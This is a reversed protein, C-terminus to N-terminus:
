DLKASFLASHEATSNKTTPFSLNPSHRTVASSSTVETRVSSDFGKKSLATVYERGSVCPLNTM